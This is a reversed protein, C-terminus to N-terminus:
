ATQTWIVSGSLSTFVEGFQKKLRPVIEEVFQQTDNESIGPNYSVVMLVMSYAELYDAGKKIIRGLELIDNESVDTEWSIRIDALNQCIERLDQSYPGKIIVNYDFAPEYGWFNLIFCGKQLILLDARNAVNMDRGVAKCVAALLSKPDNNM